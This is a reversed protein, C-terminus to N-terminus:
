FFGLGKLLLFIGIVLGIVGSILVIKENYRKVVYKTILEPYWLYILGKLFTLWALITIIVPWNWVWINHAVILLIGIILTVIAAFQLLTDDEVMKRGRELLAKPHFITALGVIILYIGFVKALFISIDM